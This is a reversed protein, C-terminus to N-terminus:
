FKVTSPGKAAIHTLHEKDRMPSKKYWEKAFQKHQQQTWNPYDQKSDSFYKNYIDEGSLLDYRKPLKCDFPDKFSSPRAMFVVQKSIIEQHFSDTWTRYKYIKLPLNNLEDYSIIDIQM